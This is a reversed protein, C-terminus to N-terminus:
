TRYERASIKLILSGIESMLAEIEQKPNEYENMKRKLFCTTLEAKAAVGAQPSYIHM